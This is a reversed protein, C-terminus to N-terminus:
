EVAKEQDEATRYIVEGDEFESIAVLGPKPLREYYKSIEIQERNEFVEDMTDRDNKFDELKKTLEKKEEAAIMNARKYLIVVTEYINGTPAALNKVDRTITNTPVKKKIDM